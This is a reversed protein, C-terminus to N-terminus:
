AGSVLGVSTCETFFQRIPAEKVGSAIFLGPGATLDVLGTSM